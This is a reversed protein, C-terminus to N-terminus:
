QAIYEQAQKKQLELRKAEQEARKQAAKAAKTEAATQGSPSTSQKSFRSLDVSASKAQEDYAVRLQNAADTEQNLRSIREQRQKLFEATTSSVNQNIQDLQEQIGGTIGGEKFYNRPDWANFYAEAYVAAKDVFGAVEVTAIQIAARINAPFQWFADSMLSQSEEASLGWNKFTDQLFRSTDAIAKRM